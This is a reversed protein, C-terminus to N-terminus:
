VFNLHYGYKITNMWCPFMYFSRQCITVFFNWSIEVQIFSSFLLSPVDLLRIIASLIAWVGCANVILPLGLIKLIFPCSLDLPSLLTLPAHLLYLFFQCKLSFLGFFLPLLTCLSIVIITVSTIVVSGVVFEQHISEVVVLYIALPWSNKTSKLSFTTPSCLIYM